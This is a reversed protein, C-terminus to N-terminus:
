SVARRQGTKPRMPAPGSSRALRIVALETVTAARDNGAPALTSRDSRKSRPLEPNFVILNEASVAPQTARGTYGMLIDILKDFARTM